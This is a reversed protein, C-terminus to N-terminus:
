LLEIFPERSTADCYGFSNSNETSIVRFVIADYIRHLCSEAQSSWIGGGVFYIGELLIMKFGFNIKLHQGAQFPGLYKGEEPYRQGTIGTGSKNCIHIGFYAKETYELFKAHVEFQYNRGGHLLNTKNGAEDVIKFALLEAGLTPFVTTAEPVLEPDFHREEFMPAAGNDQTKSKSGLDKGAKDADLYEQILLKEHDAPAYILKQYAKVVTAPQAYMLRIGSDLLLARDCLEVVQPGSHSVFIISTGDNKLKELRAMCKRQFKEDGVALAEDVILIAPDVMAQVAFALRLLMGSSYTKAPQDIFAGIDAFSAIDDFRANIEENSLGLIMGNIYVNERGTFELDFGSGLELLAAIRGETRIIGGTPSFTGCIIQLLTSKGSGNRGVIGVTEGKKVEFSVDKLAWFERHFQKRGRLLMQLLRHHREDYVLFSKSVNQVSISVESSM